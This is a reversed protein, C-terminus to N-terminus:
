SKDYRVALAVLGFFERAVRQDMGAATMAQMDKDKFVAWLMMLWEKDVETCQGFIVREYAPSEMFDDMKM